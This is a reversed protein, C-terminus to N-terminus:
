SRGRPVPAASTPESSPSSQFYRMPSQYAAQKMWSLFACDEGPQVVEVKQISKSHFKAAYDPPKWRWSGQERLVFLPGIPGNRRDVKM